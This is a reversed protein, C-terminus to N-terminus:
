GLNVVPDGGRTGWSLDLSLSTFRPQSSAPTIPVIQPRTEYSHTESTQQKNKQKNKGWFEWRFSINLFVALKRCFLVAPLLRCVILSCSARIAPQHPLSIPELYRKGTLLDAVKLLSLVRGFAKLPHSYGLRSNPYQERGTGKLLLQDCSRGAEGGPHGLRPASGAHPM